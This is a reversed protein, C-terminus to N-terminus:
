VNANASRRSPQLWAVCALIPALGFAAFLYPNTAGTLLIGAIISLVVPVQYPGVGEALRLGGFRGRLGDLLLRLPLSLFLIAGVVGTKFLLDLYSLEYSFISGYRYDAAIAGFGHGLVPREVIHGLLVRAQERRVDDSYAAGTDEPDSGGPPAATPLPDGPLLIPEEAVIIDAFSVSRALLYDPLSFGFSAGIGSGALFILITAAVVTLPGRFSRAGLVLVIAVSLAAGLWFGRTYSATIDVLLAVYLLWMWPSRPRDLLRQVVLALGIQLYLGSGLYLRYAGNPMYGVAGGMGLDGLLVPRLEFYLDILRSASVVILALTVIANAACARLLWRRVWASQGELSLLSFVLVFAFFLHANADQIVDNPLNGSLL